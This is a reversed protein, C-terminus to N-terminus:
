TNPSFVSLFSSMMYNFYFSIHLKDHVTSIVILGVVTTEIFKNLASM